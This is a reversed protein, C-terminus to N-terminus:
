AAVGSALARLWIDRGEDEGSFFADAEATGFTFPCHAPRHEVFCELTARAGMRYEESRLARAGHFAERMLNEVVLITSM